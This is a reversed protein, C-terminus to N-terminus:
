AQTNSQRLFQISNCSLMSKPKLEHKGSLIQTAKIQSRQQEAEHDFKITSGRKLHVPSAIVM